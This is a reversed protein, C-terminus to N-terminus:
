HQELHQCAAVELQFVPHLTMNKIERAHVLEKTQRSAPTQNSKPGSDVLFEPLPNEGSRKPYTPLRIIRIDRTPYCPQYCTEHPCQHMPKSIKDKTPVVGHNPDTLKCFTGNSPLLKTM